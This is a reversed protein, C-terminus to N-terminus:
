HLPLLGKAEDVKLAWRLFAFGLAMERATEFSAGGGSHGGRHEMFFPQHGAAQLAAAFRRSHSPDVRDDRSTTDLLVPPLPGAPINHIPSYARLWLRAEPDDPDGYEDIWAKGGDFRTYNLMDHLGVTGWVAGFREPYRTLMVGCLLGGNSHGHCAIRGPKTFGRAVLDAAVAAFDEFAKNRNPGKAQIHWSPGFESGGRIHAEVYAGGREIWVKGLLARYAPELSIAFGGYGYLLVPIDKRAEYGNPLVIHYPVETGDDSTADWLDVECGGADFRAPSEYLPRFVIGDVGHALDFLWTRRPMLYGTATLILTRDGADPAVDFPYVWLSQAKAPPVIERPAAAPDTTDLVMLSPRFRRMETWFLWNGIFFVDEPRVAAGPKPSFLIREDSGDHRCLVLTGSPHPGQESAIWASWAYNFLPTTDPPNTLTVPPQGARLLTVREMDFEIVELRAEIWEEGGFRSIWGSIRVNEPLTRCILQADETRVGRHLRRLAGPWGSRTADGPAASSLILSDPDLWAATGRDPGLDFGGPVFRCSTLDFEISRTLDSGEESLMLLVREPDFPSTQTGEWSWVTGTEACFADVDFVTQWAADHTIAVTEPVRQWLGRPNEATHRFRYVYRGRRTLSPVEDTAELIARIALEDDIRQPSSFAAETRANERSVFAAIAEGDTELEPFPFDDM